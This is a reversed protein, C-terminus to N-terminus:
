LGNIRHAVKRSSARGVQPRRTRRLNPQLVANFVTQSNRATNKGKADLSFRRADAGWDDPMHCSACAVKGNASLRKDWFLDRGLTVASPLTKLLVQRLATM